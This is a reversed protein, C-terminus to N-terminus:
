ASATDQADDPETFLDRQARMWEPRGGQDPADPVPRSLIGRVQREGLSYRRCLEPVPTGADYAAVLARNREALLLDRCRPITLREGSHHHMLVAAAPGGLLETLQDAVANARKGTPITVMLGGYANVLRMAADWGLLEVLGRVSEPLLSDAM